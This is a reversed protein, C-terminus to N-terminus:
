CLLHEKMKLSGDKFGKNYANHLAECIEDSVADVCFGGIVTCNGNEKHRMPCEQYKMTHGFITSARRRDFEGNVM